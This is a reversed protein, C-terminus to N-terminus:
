RSDPFPLFWLLSFFTLNCCCSYPFSQCINITKTTIALLLIHINKANINNDIPLIYWQIKNNEHPKLSNKEPEDFWLCSFVFSSSFLQYPQLSIHCFLDIHISLTEQWCICNWIAHWALNDAAIRVPLFLYFALFLFSQRIPTPPLYFLLLNELKIQPLLCVFKTDDILFIRIHQLIYLKFPMNIFHVFFLVKYCLFIM